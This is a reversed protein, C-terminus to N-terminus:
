GMIRYQLTISPWPCKYSMFYLKSHIMGWILQEVKQGAAWGVVVLSRSDRAALMASALEGRLKKQWKMEAFMDDIHDFYDTIKSGQDDRETTVYTKIKTEETLYECIEPIPFVIQEM